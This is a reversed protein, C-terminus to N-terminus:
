TPDYVHNCNKLFAILRVIRVEISCELVSAVRHKCRDLVNEM